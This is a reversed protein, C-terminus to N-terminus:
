SRSTSGNSRHEAAVEDPHPMAAIETAILATADHFEPWALLQRLADHIADSSAAAPAISIGVGARECADANRFQDAAQPFCLQPDGRHDRRSVNGIRRAVGRCRM